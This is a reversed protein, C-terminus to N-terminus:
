NERAYKLQSKLTGIAGDWASESVADGHAQKAEITADRIQEVWADLLEDTLLSPLENFVRDSDRNNDDILKKFPNYRIEISPICIPCFFMQNAKRFKSKRFCKSHIVSMCKGCETICQGINKFKDCSNCKEKKINTM